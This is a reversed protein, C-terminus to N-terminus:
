IKVFILINTCGFKQKSKINLYIKALSEFLDDIGSNTNASVLKFIANIEKAFKKGEEESVEETEYLDSKAGAM